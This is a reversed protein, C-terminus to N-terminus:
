GNNKANGVVSPWLVSKDPIAPQSSKGIVKWHLRNRNGKLRLRVKAIPILSRGLLESIRLVASGWKVEVHAELLRPLSPASLTGYLDGDKLTLDLTIFCYDTCAIDGENTWARALETRLAEVSSKRTRYLWAAGVSAASAIGVSYSAMQLTTLIPMDANWEVKIPKAVLHQEADGAGNNKVNGVMPNAPHTEMDDSGTFIGFNEGEAIRKGVCIKLM